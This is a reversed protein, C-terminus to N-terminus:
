IRPQQQQQQQQQQQPMGIIRSSAARAEAAAAAKLRLEERQDTSIVDKPTTQNENTNSEHVDLRSYQHIGGNGSLAGSWSARPATLGAEVESSNSQLTQQSLPSSSPAIASGSAVTGVGSFRQSTASTISGSTTSNSVTSSFRQLIPAFLTIFFQRVQPFLSMSASSNREIVPDSSPVLRYMELRVIPRMWSQDELKRLTSLSPLFWSLYGATHMGGVLIGALHGLLSVGPIIVSLVLMLVWPYLKTPVNFLGFVSRTQAVSLASEDVAMAFLVGSFGAASGYFGSPSWIFMEIVALGIYVIGIIITYVLILFFFRLSGFIAELSTGISFLSFMNMGIHMMSLHMYACTIIRYLELDLVVAYPQIAFTSVAKGFNTLNSAIYALICVVTVVFSILPYQGLLEQFRTQGAPRLDRINANSPGQPLTNSSMRSYNRASKM